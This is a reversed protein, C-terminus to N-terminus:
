KVEKNCPRWTVRDTSHEYDEVSGWGVYQDYLFVGHDIVHVVSKGYSKPTGQKKRLWCVPGPVDEPCDWAVVKPASPLPRRTRLNVTNVSDVSQNALGRVKQWTKGDDWSTEDGILIKEGKLLPRWGEPLDAETFDLRHYNESPLLERFGPLHRTLSWPPKIRYVHPCNIVNYYDSQDFPDATVWGVNHKLWEIQKGDAAATFIAAAAKKQESTPNM